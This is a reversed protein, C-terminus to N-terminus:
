NRSAFEAGIATGLIQQSVKVNFEFYNNKLFFKAM